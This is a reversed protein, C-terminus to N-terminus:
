AKLDDMVSDAFVIDSYAVYFSEGWKPESVMFSQLVETSAYDPNEVLQVGAGLETKRREFEEGKYGRVIVIDDVGSSRFAALTHEIMPKGAVPVFCKPIDDTFPRLRSGLGAAVIIAQSPPEGWGLPDTSEEQQPLAASISSLRTHVASPVASLPRYRRVLLM